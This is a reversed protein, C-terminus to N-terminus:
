ADSHTGRRSHSVRLSVKSASDTRARCCLIADLSPSRPNDSYRLQDQAVGFRVELQIGMDSLGGLEPLIKESLFEAPGGLRVTGAIQDDRMAAATLTAELGDLYPGAARALWDAATTPQIGRGIRTFLKRQLHTELARLHGSVAPQTMALQAAARTASGTRYVALFTRLHTLQSM